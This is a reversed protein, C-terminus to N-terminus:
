GYRGKIYDATERRRPAVFMDGNPAHEIVKGLLMFICEESAPRAQAVNHTVILITYQGRLERILEEVAATGKPDPVSCPEDM